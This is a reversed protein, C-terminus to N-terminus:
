PNVLSQPVNAGMQLLQVGCRRVFDLDGGPLLAARAVLLYDARRAGIEVEGSLRITYIPRSKGTTKNRLIDLLSAAALHGESQDELDAHQHGTKNPNHDFRVAKRGSPKQRTYVPRSNGM